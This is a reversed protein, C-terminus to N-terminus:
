EPDFRKKQRSPVEFYRGDEIRLATLKGGWVCGTDLPVVNYRAFDHLTGHYITAWHGFLIRTDVSKRNPLTFWPRLNEPETGPPGKHRFDLRGEDSCYRMRTCANIIFRRREIGKLDADWRDPQNGYMQEILKHYRDSALLREVEAAHELAEAIDWEPPLGAHVMAMRGGADYHILPRTRLWVLLEDRDAAQLIRDFTDLHGPRCTGNAVALLHLDHNGLVTVADLKKALRLVSLSGPGRNVLDGTIWLQDRRKDFNIETLLSQLEAFCGQVDGIAYTAM